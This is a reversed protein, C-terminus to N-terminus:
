QGGFIRVLRDGITLPKLPRTTSSLGVAPPPLQQAPRALAALEGQRQAATAEARRAELRLDAQTQEMQDVTNSLISVEQNLHRNELRTTSVYYTALVLGVALIVAMAGASSWAIRVGRRNSEAQQTATRALSQYAGIAREMKDAAADALLLLTESDFQSPKDSRAIAKETAPPSASSNLTAPPPNAASMTPSAAQPTPRATNPDASMLSIRASLIDGDAFPGPEAQISSPILVERRGDSTLRSPIKGASIHRNITRVSYGLTVAAQEISQWTESM